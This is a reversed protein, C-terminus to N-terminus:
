GGRCCPDVPRGPEVARGPPVGSSSTAPLAPRSVFALLARPWKLMTWRGGTLLVERGLVSRRTAPECVLAQARAAELSVSGSPTEMFRSLWSGRLFVRAFAQPELQM